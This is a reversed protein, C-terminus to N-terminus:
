VKATEFDAKEKDPKAGEGLNIKLQNKDTEEKPEVETYKGEHYLSVEERLIDMAQKLEKNHPYSSLNDMPVKPIKTEGRGGAASLYKTGELIVSEDDKAGKITFGTVDYLNSLDHSQMSRINIVEIKSHKFVDDLCALHPRLAQMATRLDDDIIGKGTVNHVNGVGVGETIEYRYNCFDDKINAGVIKYGREPFAAKAKTGDQKKAM